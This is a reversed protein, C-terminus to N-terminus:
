KRWARSLLWQSSALALVLLAYALMKGDRGLWWLCGLLVGSGVVFNIAAQVWWVLGSVPKRWLYRPLWPLLLALALAPAVFNLLHLLIDAFRM